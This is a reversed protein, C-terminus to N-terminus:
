TARREPDTKAETSKWSVKRVYPGFQRTGGGESVVRLVARPDEVVVGALVMARLGAFAEPVLPTSPGLVMVERCDAAAMLLADVTNNVISTATILAVQCRPLVSPAEAAPRLIGTSREVREFVQLSRVRKLLPAVLPGFHGIMAVDDDPRLDVHELADGEHLGERRTDALANACALGVASAIPDMSGLLTLLESASRGALPAPGAFAACCGGVGDRFTYALGARGDELVVATYGLGIRVDAVRAAQSVRELHAALRAAVGDRKREGSPM